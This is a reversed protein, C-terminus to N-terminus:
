GQGDAEPIGLEDLAVVQVYPAVGKSNQCEADTGVANRDAWSGSDDVTHLDGTNGDVRGSARVPVQVPPCRWAVPAEPTWGVLQDKATFCTIWTSVDNLMDEIGEVTGQTAAAFGVVQGVAEATDPGCICISGSLGCGGFGVGEAM